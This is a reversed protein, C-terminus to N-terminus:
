LILRDRSEVLELVIRAAARFESPRRSFNVLPYQASRADKAIEVVEEAVIAPIELEGQNEVIRGQAYKKNVM